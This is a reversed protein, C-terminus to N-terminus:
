THKYLIKLKELGRHIKVATANKTQGTILSMELLSLDQIYKMRMVSRYSIPLKSILLMANKGDLIDFLNKSQNNIQPEFGKEILFDLSSSKKKRYEDIILHNLIHYLFAKMTDIKGGKVLYKWTKMYTEQVLDQSIEHNHTKFFAHANLGYEFNCHAENFIVNRKANQSPTM